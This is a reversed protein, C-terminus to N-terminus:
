AARADAPASNEPVASRRRLRLALVTLAVGAIMAYIGILWAVSLATLEPTVAAMVIIVLGLLVSLVGSLGLLWEGRIEKRLRIAASVELGGTVIAWAAILLVTALGYALAFLLPFLVFMTGVVIGAMGSLVM